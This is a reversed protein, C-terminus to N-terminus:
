VNRRLVFVMKNIRSIQLEFRAKSSFVMGPVFSTFTGPEIVDQEGTTHGTIIENTHNLFRM